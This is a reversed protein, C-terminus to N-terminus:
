WEVCVATIKGHAHFPGKKIKYDKRYRPHRLKGALEYAENPAYRKANEARPTWLGRHGVYWVLRGDDTQCQIAHNM